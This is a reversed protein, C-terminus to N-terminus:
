GENEAWAQLRPFDLVRMARLGVTEIIGETKLQAIQRSITEIALGLYDGTETRSLPLEFQQQPCVTVPDKGVVRHSREVVHQLFSAVKARASLRGLVFMWQRAADLEDFTRQLLVRELIPHQQLLNEFPKRTLCCLEIDTAAEVMLSGLDGFPRGVFDSSFQLGVIQQRGDRKTRVLKVVGSIVIAFSEPEEGGDFIVKGQPYHRRYAIKHLRDAEVEPLASCLATDRIECKNCANIHVGM